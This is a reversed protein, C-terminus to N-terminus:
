AMPDSLRLKVNAAIRRQKSALSSRSSNSAAAAAASAGARSRKKKHRAADTAAAAAVAPGSFISEKGIQRRSHKWASDFNGGFTQAAARLEDGQSHPLLTINDPLGLQRRQEDRSKEEKRTARMQRRLLKNAAYDDRCVCM